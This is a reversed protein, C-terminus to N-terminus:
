EFGLDGHRDRGGGYGTRRRADGGQARCRFVEPRGRAGPDGLAASKRRKEQGRGQRLTRDRGREVAGGEGARRPDTSRAVLTQRQRDLVIVPGAVSNAQQWLRAHGPLHGRRTLRTCNRRPLLWTRRVRGAWLWAARAPTGSAPKGAATAAQRYGDVDGERQWACIRRGIRQSVDVKDATLQLGGDEVRPSLTLHLWEGTGEYVARGATARLPPEPQAGPKAAPTQTLVVHGDLMASQVQAAGGRGADKGRGPAPAPLIRRWGTAARPRGPERATTEEISAHGVGTMATLASGPGFEGTVEDAALRSPVAAGNGRQSEGTVVVGGTGHITAPEVQGKGADRFEVDAVPSRWNRSVRLPSRRCHESLEESHMEVGRELHAHRLQGQPTFELEAAPSTGHMQRRPERNESVSDMKVGGELHGHRPQNHEDFDM